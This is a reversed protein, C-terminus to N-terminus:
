PKKKKIYDSIRASGPVVEIKPEEEEEPEAAGGKKRGEPKPPKYGPLDKRKGELEAIKERIFKLREKEEKELVKTKEEKESDELSSNAIEIKQNSYYKVAGQELTQWAIQDSTIPINNKSDGITAGIKKAVDVLSEREGEKFIKEEEPREKDQELYLYNKYLCESFNPNFRKRNNVEGEWVAMQSIFNRRTLDTVVNVRDTEGTKPDKIFQKEGMHALRNGRRMNGEADEKRFEGASRAEQEKKPRLYMLGNKVGVGEALAFHRNAKSITCSQSVLSLAEQESLGLKGMLYQKAFAAQGDQNVSLFEGKKIKLDGNEDRYDERAVTKNLAENDHYAKTMQLYAAMAVDTQGSDMANMMVSHLYDENDSDYFFKMKERAMTNRKEDAYFTEVPKYKGIEDRKGEIQQNIDKRKEPALNPDELKKQLQNIEKNIKGRKRTREIVSGKGLWGKHWMFGQAATESFDRSAGLAGWLKGEKLAAGAKSEGMKEQTEKKSQLAERLGQIVKTPRLELGTRSKLKLGAWGATWLGAKGMGKGIMAPAKQAWALGKGAISGVAGGAQQAVMLGGLLM